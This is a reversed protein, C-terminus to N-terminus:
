SADNMPSSYVQSDLSGTSNACAFKKQLGTKTLEWFQSKDNLQKLHLFPKFIDKMSTRSLALILYLSM